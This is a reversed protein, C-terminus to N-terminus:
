ADKHHYAFHTLKGPKSYIPEYEESIDVFRGKMFKLLAGHDVIPPMPPSISHIEGVIFTIKDLISNSIKSFAKWEGGECDMKLFCCKDIKFDNFINTLSITKVEISRGSKCAPNLAAKDAISGIFEHVLGHENSTDFYNVFVKRGARSDIAKHLVHIKGPLDPNLEIHRKLATVNEPIPEVAVVNIGKSALYLSVGGIHAGVDIAWDGAKLNLSEIKYEDEMICARLTNYDNKEGRYTVNIPFGSPTEMVINLYDGIM